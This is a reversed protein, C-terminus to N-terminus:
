TDISYTSSIFRQGPLGCWRCAAPEARQAGLPTRAIDMAQGLWENFGTGRRARVAVRLGQSGAVKQEFSMAALLERKSSREDARQVQPESKDPWPSTPSAAAAQGLVGPSLLAGSDVPAGQATALTSGTGTHSQGM